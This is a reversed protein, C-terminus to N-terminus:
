LLGLTYERFCPTQIEVRFRSHLSISPQNEVGDETLCVKTSLYDPGTPQSKVCSFWSVLM